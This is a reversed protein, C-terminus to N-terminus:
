INRQKDSHKTLSSWQCIQAPVADKIHLIHNRKDLRVLVPASSGFSGLLAILPAFGHALRDLSQCMNSGELFVRRERHPCTQLFFVWYLAVLPPTRHINFVDRTRM